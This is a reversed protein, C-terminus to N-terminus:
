IRFEKRDIINYIESSSDVIYDLIYKNRIDIVSIISSNFGRNRQDLRM